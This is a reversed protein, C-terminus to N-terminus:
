SPRRPWSFGSEDSWYLIVEYKYMLRRSRVREEFGLYRPLARPESFRIDRGVTWPIHGAGAARPSEDAVEGLGNLIALEPDERRRGSRADGRVRKGLHVTRGPLDAAESSYEVTEEPLSNMAEREAAPIPDALIVGDEAPAIREAKEATGSPGGMPRHHVPTDSVRKQMGRLMSCTRATVGSPGVADGSDM